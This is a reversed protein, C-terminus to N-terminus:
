IKEELSDHPGKHGAPRRCPNGRMTRCDCLLEPLREALRQLADLLSPVAVNVIEEQSDAMRKMQRSINEVHHYFSQEYGTVM